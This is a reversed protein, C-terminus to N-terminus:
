HVYSNREGEGFDDVMISIERGVAGEVETRERNSHSFYSV